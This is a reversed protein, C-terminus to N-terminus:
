FLSAPSAIREFSDNSNLPHTSGDDKIEEIKTVQSIYPRDKRREIYEFKSDQTFPNFGQIQGLMTKAKGAFSLLSIPFDDSSPIEEETKKKMEEFKKSAYEYTAKAADKVIQALVAAEDIDSFDDNSNQIPKQDSSLLSEEQAKNKLYNELILDVGKLVLATAIGSIPQRYVIGTMGGRYFNKWGGPSQLIKLVVKMMGINENSFKIEKQIRDLPHSCLAAIIGSVLGAVTSDVLQQLAPTDNRGKSMASQIIDLCTFYPLLYALNRLYSAFFGKESTQALNILTRVHTRGREDQLIKKLVEVTNKNNVPDAQLRTLVVSFPNYVLTDVLTAGTLAIPNTIEPRNTWNKKLYNNSASYTTYFAGNAPLIAIVKVGVGTYLRGLNQLIQYIGSIKKKDSELTLIQKTNKAVTESLMKQTTKTDFPYTIGTVVVSDAVGKCASNLLTGKEVSSITASLAADKEVTALLVDAGEREISSRDLKKKAVFITKNTAQPEPLPEITVDGNIGKVTNAQIIDILEPDEFPPQNIEQTHKRTIEPTSM